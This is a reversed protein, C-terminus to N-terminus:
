WFVSLCVDLQRWSLRARAQRGASGAVTARGAEPLSIKVPGCPGEQAAAVKATADPELGERKSTRAPPSVLVRLIEAFARM